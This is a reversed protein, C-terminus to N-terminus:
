QLEIKAKEDNEKPIKNFVIQGEGPYQEYLKRIYNIPIKDPSIDDHLSDGLMNKIVKWTEQLSRGSDLYVAGIIAEVLDGLAKPVEVEDVDDTDDETNLELDHDENSTASVELFRGISAQLKSNSHLLYQQLQLRASVNALSTNNVYQSRLDTMQGPTCKNQHTYIHGTILYDLVADGLFELRQYCETVKHQVCSSHTVAQVLFSKENFSYQLILELKDLCIRNYIDIVEDAVWSESCIIANQLIKEENEVTQHLGIGLWHLFQHASDAGGVLLHVGILAEVADAISKDSLIHHTWPNYVEHEKHLLNINKSSDVEGTISENSETQHNYEEADMEVDSSVVEMKTYTDVDTGPFFDEASECKEQSSIKKKHLKQSEEKNQKEQMLKFVEEKLNVPQRANIRHWLDSALGQTCLEESLETKVVFGPLYGHTRLNLPLRQLFEPINKLKARGYLTRNSILVSRRQTLKGEHDNRYKMFLFESTAYKLFSDGLVELQELNFDANSSALTLSQLLMKPHLVSDIKEALAVCINDHNELAAQAKNKSWLTDITQRQIDDVDQVPISGIRCCLEYSVNLSNTCHLISPLCMIQWWLSAPLVLINVLEPVLLPPQSRQKKCKINYKNVYNLEKHVFRCELLPQDLNGIKIEHNKEYYEVFTKYLKKDEPFESMPSMHELLNEVYYMTGEKSAKGYWPQIISDSFISNFPKTSQVEKWFSKSADIERLCELDIDCGHILPAILTGKDKTSKFMYSNLHLLNQFVLMHFQKILLLNEEYITMDEKILNVNVVLEGFKQSFLSFPSSVIYKQSIFGLSIVSNKSNINIYENNSNNSTISISYLKFKELTWTLNFSECVHMPYVQKRKRTGPQPDGPETIEEPVDVLGKLIDEPTKETPFLHEDLEEMEHLKKCLELAASKKALDKNKMPNGKITSKLPANTKPLTIGIVIGEDTEDEEIEPYLNSFKDQPLTGCYRNILQVASNETVKPGEEGYPLYPSINESNNFYNRVEQSTPERRGHCRKQLIKEIRNYDKIDSKIKHCEQISGLLIYSSIEARARGRSQVYGRYNMPMDFRIVLNCKRIDVGEELVSTSVIINLDDNRFAKLTEEMRKMEEEALNIDADPRNNAGIVYGPKIYMLDSDLKSMDLLLDYLLKAVNRREVFIIGFVKKSGYEKLIDLLKIVKSNLYETPNDQGETLCYEHIEKLKDKIYSIIDRWRPEDARTVKKELDEIEYEIAKKASWDGILKMLDFINNISKKISKKEKEDFDERKGIYNIVDLLQSHIEEQFLSSSSLSIEFTSVIEKAGTSYKKVTSLDYSTVLTSDLSKELERCLKEVGLETAKCKKQIACATLGLIKPCKNKDLQKVSQYERMIENMPSNGTAHHCEDLILLNVREMPLYKHLVIDRFIADIIVIVEYKELEQLWVKKDWTDVNMSGDYFGVSLGTHMKIAASQQRVLPVTNVVFVSRMAGESFLGRIKAAHHKILLISIFTKGSGTGLVLISNKEKAHDFLELQYSRTKFESEEM